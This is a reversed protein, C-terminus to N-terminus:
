HLGKCLVTPTHPKPSTPASSTEHWVCAQMSKSCKYIHKLIFICSFVSLVTGGHPSKLANGWMAGKYCGQSAAPSPPNTEQLHPPPTGQGGPSLAAKSQATRGKQGRGRERPGGQFGAQAESHLPSQSALFIVTAELVLSPHPHHTESPRLPVHARNIPVDSFLWRSTFPGCAPMPWDRTMPGLSARNEMSRLPDQPLTVVHGTFRAPPQSASGTMTSPQPGQLAGGGRMGLGPPRCLGDHTCSALVTLHTVQRSSASPLNGADLTKKVLQLRDASHGGEGGGHESRHLQAM